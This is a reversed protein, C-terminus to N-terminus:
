PPPPPLGPNLWALGSAMPNLRLGVLPRIPNPTLGVFLGPPPKPSAAAGGIPSISGATPWDPFVINSAPCNFGVPEM